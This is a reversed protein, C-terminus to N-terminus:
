NLYFAIRDLYFQRLCIAQFKINKKHKKNSIISDLNNIIKRYKIILENIVEKQDPYPYINYSYRNSLFSFFDSNELYSSKEEANIIEFYVDYYALLIDDFYRYYYECSLDNKMHFFLKNISKITNILTDSNISIEKYREILNKLLKQQRVDLESKNIEQIYKKFINLMLITFQNKNYFTDFKSYCEKTAFDCFIISDISEINKDFSNQNSLILKTIGIPFTSKLEFSNYNYQATCYSVSLMILAAFHIFKTLFFIKKM